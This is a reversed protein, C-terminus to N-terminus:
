RVYRTGYKKDMWAVFSKVTTLFGKAQNESADFNLALYDYALLELWDRETFELWSSVDLRNMFYSITQLGLRYKYYTNPSKGVAKERFFEIMDKIYFKDAEHM